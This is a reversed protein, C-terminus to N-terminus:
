NALDEALVEVDTRADELSGIMRNIIGFADVLDADVEDSRELLAYADNIISDLSVLSANVENATYFENDM